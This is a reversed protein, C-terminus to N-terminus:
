NKIVVIPITIPKGDKFTITIYKVGSSVQQLFIKELWNYYINKYNKQYFVKGEMDTITVTFDQPRDFKGQLYVFSSAPNPYANLEFQREVDIIATVVQQKWTFAQSLATVDTNYVKIFGKGVPKQYSLRTPVTWNYQGTNAINQAINTWTTGSDASMDISVTGPISVSEWTIAFVHDALLTDEKVPRKVTITPKLANETAITFSQKTAAIVDADVNMGRVRIRCKANISDGPERGYINGPKRLLNNGVLWDYSGQMAPAHVITQWTVGSDLSLEIKVSDTINYASWKISYVSGTKFVEGGIPAKLLLSTLNSRTAHGDYSGGKYKAGNIVPEPDVRVIAATTDGPGGPIKDNIRLKLFINLPADAKWNFVLKKTSITPAITTWNVGNDASYAITISDVGNSTWSIPLITNRKVVTIKSPTKLNLTGEFIRFTSDSFAAVNENEADTIKIRGKNTVQDPIQWSYKMVNNPHNTVVNTWTTGSDSSFYINVKAIGMSEWTIDRVSGKSLSAGKAPDKVKIYGSMSSRMDAGDYSGGRYKMANFVLQQILVPAISQSFLAANDAAVVKIYASNLNAPAKWFYYGKTGEQNQAISQWATSGDTSYYLNVKDVGVQDWKVPYVGGVNTKPAVPQKLAISRGRIAFVSSLVSFGEDDTMRILCNASTSAPVKWKYSLTSAQVTNIDTWTAGSDPSFSIKVFSLHLATKWKIVTDVGVNFTDNLVPSLITLTKAANSSFNHGDYSGGRYKGPAPTAMKTIAYADSEVTVLNDTASQIRIKVANADQDPVQWHFFGRDAPVNNSVVVWPGGNIAYSINVKNISTAKWRIAAVTKGKLENAHLLPIWEIQPPPITFPQTNISYVAPDELDTIRIFCNASPTEPVTWEFVGASAPISSTVSQWTQANDFSYDIKINNLNSYTWRIMQKSGSPWTPGGDPSTLLLAQAGASLGTATLLLLFLIIRKM